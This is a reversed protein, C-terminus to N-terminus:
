SISFASYKIGFRLEGEKEGKYVGVYYKNDNENNFVKNNERDERKIM